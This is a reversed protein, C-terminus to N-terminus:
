KYRLADLPNISSARRAPILGTIFGVVAGIVIILAIFWLPSYFLQVAEGGFRQALLNFGFNVFKSGIIGIIIGSLGGLFGMVSSEFVFMLLIDKESVGISKMIGIEETRELLTVTMTNFMGIASVALAIIGFFALIIQLVHFVKNAQDVTDSLSSVSLGRSDLEVRLQEVYDTKRAKVKLRTFYPIVAYKEVDEMNVYVIPEEREIMGVVTFPSDVPVVETENGGLNENDTEKPFIFSLKVQKHIIREPDEKFIKAFASSVVIGNETSNDFVTGHDIELGSLSFFSPKVVETTVNSILNNFHVQSSIQSVPSVEAVNNIAEIKSIFDNDIKLEQEKSPTADLSLLADSTTIKELIVNQLGYGLSVLFLIASIGIGMGLVTLLTRSTRAKFMRTSLKFLDLIRM